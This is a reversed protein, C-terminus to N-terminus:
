QEIKEKRDWLNFIFICVPFFSFMMLNLNLTLVINKICQLLKRNWKLFFGGNLIKKLNLTYVALGEFWDWYPNQQTHWFWLQSCLLVFSFCISVSMLSLWGIQYFKLLWGESALLSGTQRCFSLLIALILHTQSVASFFCFKSAILLSLFLILNKKKKQCKGKRLTILDELEM